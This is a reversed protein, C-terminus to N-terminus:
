YSWGMARHGMPLEKGHVTRLALRSSPSIVISWLLPKFIIFSLDCYLKSFILDMSLNWTINWLLKYKMWKKLHLLHVMPSCNLLITVLAGHLQLIKGQVSQWICFFWKQVATKLVLVVVKLIASAALGSLSNLEQSGCTPLLLRSTFPWLNNEPRWMHM